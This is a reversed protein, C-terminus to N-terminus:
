PLVFEYGCVVEKLDPKRMVVGIVMGHKLEQVEEKVMKKILQVGGAQNRKLLYTGNSSTDKITYSLTIKSVVKKPEPRAFLPDDVSEAATAFFEEEEGKEASSKGNGDLKHGDEKKEEDEPAEKIAELKGNGPEHQIERHANITCHLRSLQVLHNQPLFVMSERGISFSAENGQFFIEKSDECYLGRNKMLHARCDESLILKLTFALPGDDDPAGGDKQTDGFLMNDNCLTASTFVDSQMTFNIEGSGNTKVRKLNPGHEGTSPGDTSWRKELTPLGSSTSHTLSVSQALNAQAISRTASSANLHLSLLGATQLLQGNKEKIKHLDSGPIMYKLATIRCTSLSITLQM